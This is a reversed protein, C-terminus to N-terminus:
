AFLKNQLNIYKTKYKIYKTFNNDVNFGGKKPYIDVSLIPSVQQPSVEQPSVQQPSVEQPSVQQPSVQQPSVEQPSVQQPSVQQPSVEQPSVQQPSVEQPSVQQPSVEQPSVQQPLVQQPSVEQPSVQQPSVEQPSVQQPLVQQPLVQQPSVQSQLGTLKLLDASRTRRILDELKNRKQFKMTNPINSRIISFNDNIIELVQPMRGLMYRKFEDESGISRDYNEDTDFAKSTGIDVKYVRHKDKEIECEMTIGFVFNEKTSAPATKSPPTLITVNGLDRQQTFTTNLYGSTSSWIQPCHGIIIKTNKINCDINQCFQLINDIVKRCHMNKNLPHINRYHTKKYDGYERGWLLGDESNFLDMFKSYKSSKINVYLNKDKNNIWQNILDVQTYDMKGDLQGHVFIYDNIKLLVGSGRLMFIKFGLNNFKFYEVRTLENEVPYYKAYIDHPNASYRTALNYNSEMHFNGAEHNGILKIVRGGVESALIDLFNLLCVIKLEAQPYETNLYDIKGKKNTDRTSGDRKNDLSDGIIVIHTTEGIWKFGLDENYKYESAEEQINLDLYLLKKLIDPNPHSIVKACDRLAIILADIDGHIDSLAIIRTDPSVNMMTTFAM